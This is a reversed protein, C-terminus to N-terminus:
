FWRDEFTTASHAGRSNTTKGNKKKKKKKKKREFLHLDRQISLLLIRPSLSIKSPDRLPSGRVISRNFLFRFLASPWFTLKKEKRKKENFRLRHYRSRFPIDIVIKLLNKYHFRTLILITRVPPKIQSSSLIKERKKKPLSFPSDHYKIHM